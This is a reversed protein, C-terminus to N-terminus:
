GRIFSRRIHFGGSDGGIFEGTRDVFDAALQGLRRLDYARCDTFRLAGIMLDGRHRLGRLFIPSTILNIRAM